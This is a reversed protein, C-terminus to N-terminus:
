PVVGIHESSLKEEGSIWVDLANATQARIQLRDGFQGTAIRKVLSRGQMPALGTDNAPITLKGPCSVITGDEFLMRLEIWCGFLSKNTVFMPTLFFIEGPRIARNIDLPDRAPFANTTDPLSFDNAEAITVWDTSVNITTFNVARGTSPTKCKVRM